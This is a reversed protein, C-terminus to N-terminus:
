DHRRVVPNLVETLGTLDASQLHRRCAEINAESSLESWDLQFGAAAALQRLFARCTRGNGERFPHVVNLEGYYHALANVFADRTLGVLYGTDALDSLVAGVQDDIYRWHCFRAGPKSIDVTRTAGAWDYVDRFLFRHFRQLHDLGYDGPITTRSAQVERVSVIRFEAEALAEPDNIGLNNRLCDTDAICYPDPAM